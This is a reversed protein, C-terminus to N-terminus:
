LTTLLLRAASFPHLVVQQRPPIFLSDGPLLTIPHPGCHAVRMKGEACFLVMFSQDTTHLTRMRRCLFTAFSFAPTRLRVTLRGERETEAPVYRVALEPRVAQRAAELHLPRGRGWDDLRYAAPSAEQVEYILNGPGIAHVLGPPLDFLDGTHSAYPVLHERATEATTGPTLGAWVQAGPEAHLVNWMEHKPRTGLCAAARADPHVQISLAAAADLIKILLPFRDPEPAQRGLLDRGFRQTLEALGVGEFPGNVVVSEAGPLASLEWSEACHEPTNARNYRRAIAEGGWVATRYVPHFVLPYLAHARM